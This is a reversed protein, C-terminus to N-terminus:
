TTAKPHPWSDAYTGLPRDAHRAGRQAVSRHTRTVVIRGGIGKAESAAGLSDSYEVDVFHFRGAEEADFPRVATIMAWRNRVFAMMGERPISTAVTSM